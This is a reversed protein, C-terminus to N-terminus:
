DGNFAPPRREVFASLAEKFDNLKMLRDYNEARAARSNSLFDDTLGERMIRKTARM